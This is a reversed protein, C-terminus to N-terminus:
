PALTLLEGFTAPGTIALGNVKASDFNFTSSVFARGGPMAGLYMRYYAVKPPEQSKFYNLGRLTVPAGASRPIALVLLNLASLACDKLKPLAAEVGGAQIIQELAWESDVMREPLRDPQVSGNHALFLIERDTSAVFPHSFIPGALTSDSAFRGHFIARIEGELRPLLSDDEYISKATRYHFLGNAAHIVYGWGHSHRSCGAVIGSLTPDNACARKLGSLLERVDAESRGVYGFM